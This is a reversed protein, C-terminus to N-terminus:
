VCVAKSLTQPKIQHKNLRKKLTNARILPKFVFEPFLWGTYSFDQGGLILHLKNLETQLDTSILHGPLKNFHVTLLIHTIRYSRSKYLRRCVTNGSSSAPWLAASEVDWPKRKAEAEYKVHIIPSDRWVQRAREETDLHPDRERERVCGCVGVFTLLFLTFTSCHQGIKLRNHIFHHTQNMRRWQIM